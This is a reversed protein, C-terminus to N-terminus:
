TYRNGYENEYDYLRIVELNSLDENGENLLLELKEKLTM